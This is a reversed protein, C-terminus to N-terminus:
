AVLVCEGACLIRNSRVPHQRSPLSCPRTGEAYLCSRMHIIRCGEGALRTAPALGKLMGRAGFCAIVKPPVRSPLIWPQPRSCRAPGAEDDAEVGGTGSLWGHSSTPSARAVVAVREAVEEEEDSGVVTSLV